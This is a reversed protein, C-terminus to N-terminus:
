EHTANADGFLEIKFGSVGEIAVVPFAFIHMSV